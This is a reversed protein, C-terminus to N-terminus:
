QNKKEEHAKKMKRRAMILQRWKPMASWKAKDEETIFEEEPNASAAKERELAELAEEMRKAKLKKFRLERLFQPVPNGHSDVSAIEDISVEVVINESNNDPKSFPQEKSPDNGATKENQASSSLNSAVISEKRKGNTVAFNQAQQHTTNDHSNVAASNKLENSGHSESLRDNYGNAAQQSGRNSDKESFVEDESETQIDTGQDNALNINIEIGNRNRDSYKRDHNKNYYDNDSLHSSLKREKIEPMDKAISSSIKRAANDKGNSLTRDQQQNSNTDDMKQYESSSLRMRRFDDVSLRRNGNTNDSISDIKSSKRESDTRRSTNNDDNISKTKSSKRESDTRRNTNNDDNISNAKSSKRELDTRRGSNNNDNSSVRIKSSKSESKKRGNVKNQKLTSRTLINCCEYHHNNEAIEIANLGDMDRYDLMASFNELLLQLCKRHGHHAADHIPTNGFDDPKCLIGIDILYEVIEIEGVSTAYHLYNGGNNDDQNALFSEPHLQYLWKICGLHGNQAAYHGPTIGQNCKHQRYDIQIGQTLQQLCTLNGGHAALHVPTIGETTRWKACSPMERTLYEVCDLSGHLAALHLPTIGDITVVAYSCGLEEVLYKLIEIHNFRAALHTCTYGYDDFTSRLRFDQQMLWKLCTLQGSATADHAPTAGTKSKLSLDVNCEQVFWKLCDLQGARSAHHVLSAGYDDMFRLVDVKNSKLVGLRGQSTAAILMRNDSAM